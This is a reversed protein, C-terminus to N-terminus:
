SPPTTSYWFISNPLVQTLPEYRPHKILLVATQSPLLSPSQPVLTYMQKPMGSELLMSQVYSLSEDSGVIFFHPLSSIMDEKLKVLERIGFTPEAKAESEM